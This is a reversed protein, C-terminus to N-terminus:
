TRHSGDRNQDNDTEQDADRPRPLQDTARRDSEPVLDDREHSRVIPLRVGGCYAPFAPGGIPPCTKVRHLAKSHSCECVCCILACGARSRRVQEEGIPPPAPRGGRRGEFGITRM